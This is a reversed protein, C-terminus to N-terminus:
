FIHTLPFSSMGHIVIHFFMNRHINHIDGLWCSHELMSPRMFRSGWGTTEVSRQGSESGAARNGITPFAVCTQFWVNILVYNYSETHNQIIRYKRREFNKFCCKTPFRVLCLPGKGSHAQELRGGSSRFGTSGQNEVTGTPQEAIIEGDYGNMDM